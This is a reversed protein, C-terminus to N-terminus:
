RKRCDYQGYLNIVNGAAGKPYISITFTEYYGNASHYFIYTPSDSSILNSEEKYAWTSGFDQTKKFQASDIVKLGESNFSTFEVGEDDISLTSTTEGNLSHAVQCKYETVAFASTSILLIFAFAITKM